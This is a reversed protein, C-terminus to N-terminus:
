KQLDILKLTTSALKAVDDFRKDISSGLVVIVYPQSTANKQMVVALNGGANETYGTKGFIIPFDKLLKNTNSVITIGKPNSTTKESEITLSEYRTIDLLGPNRAIVNWMMKAIERATSVGAAVDLRGETSSAKTSETLGSPNRFYTQNLGMQKANFNMLSIFSSRPILQSAITEAAKNSSGLLMIQMLSDPLWTSGTPLSFDVPAEDKMKAVTLKKDALTPSLALLNDATYATMIKLLSAMPRQTDANKEYIIKNSVPNYVFASKAEISPWSISPVGPASADLTQANTLIPTCVLLAFLFTIGIQIPHM